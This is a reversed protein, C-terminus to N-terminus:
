PHFHARMEQGIMKRFSRTLDDTQSYGLRGLHMFRISSNWLCTIPKAIGSWRSLSTIQRMVDGCSSCDGVASYVVKVLPHVHSGDLWLRPTVLRQEPPQGALGLCAYDNSGSM